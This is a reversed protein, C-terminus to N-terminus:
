RILKSNSNVHASYKVGDFGLFHIERFEVYLDPFGTYALNDENKSIAYSCSTLFLVCIFGYFNYHKM